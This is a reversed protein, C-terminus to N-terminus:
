YLKESLRKFVYAPYKEEYLIEYVAEAIPMEVRYKKNIRNIADSAYYGEAVM